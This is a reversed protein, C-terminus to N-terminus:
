DQSPPPPGPCRSYTLGPTRVVHTTRPQGCGQCLEEDAPLLTAPGNVDGLEPPGMISLLWRDWRSARRPETM